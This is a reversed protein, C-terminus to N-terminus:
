TPSGSQFPSIAYRSFASLRRVLDSQGSSGTKAYITRAVSRVTHYSVGMREAIEPLAFGKQIEIAIRAEGKTLDYLGKLVRLDGDNVDTPHAILLIAVGNSSFDLANGRLPIIHVICAPDIETAPLPISGVQDAHIKSLSDRLLRNAGEDSVFIRDRAVISIRRQAAEFKTNASLVRGNHQVVAAPAGIADLGAVMMDAKQQELQASLVLSRAIHPRLGNLFGTVESNIEGHVLQREFCVSINLNEPGSIQTAIGHGFGRPHLFERYVPMRDREEKSFIEYDHVFSFQGERNARDLRTNDQAWGQAAFEVFLEQFNDTAIWTRDGTGDWTIAGGWLDCHKGIHSIVGPWRDPFVAAEYIKGIIDSQVTEM